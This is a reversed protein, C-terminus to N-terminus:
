LAGVGTDLTLPYRQHPKETGLGTTRRVVEVYYPFFPIASTIVLRIVRGVCSRGVDIPVITDAGPTVHGTIVPYAISDVYAVVSLDAGANVKVRIQRLWVLDRDGVVIPGTDYSRVGLPRRFTVIPAWAYLEIDGDVLLEFDVGTIPAPFTYTVDLPDDLDTTVTLPTQAVGDLIPTLIRSVGQTCLRLQFGSLTKLHPDGRDSPTLTGVFPIPLSTHDIGFSAFRFAAFSGTLRLQVQRFAALGSLPTAVIGLGTQAVAVSTVPTESGEYHVAVAGSVGGTDLQLRLDVADKRNFDQDLADVKTWLTVAINSGNDQTGTDLQWVNGATDGALLTGDPERHLTRFSAPYRHRYWGDARPVHRYVVNTSSSNGGEPTLAVLQGKAIAARFRGSTLNVSEVGHRTLGRYLLSTDGVLSRTGEGTFARWGDNAIFILLNGDQALGDAIPPHDVNMPDKRFNITGDPLEAGDGSLRYIDKSTGIYLGGAGKKVWYPTEEAGAVRIAQGTAFSDPNLRRSPWLMGDSTLAFIRDFYPGAISIIDAPPVGNDAEMTIGVILADQDSLTDTISISAFGSIATQVAVRYFTELQGGRRFLWLENAQTDRSADAPATVSASQSQLTTSASLASPASLGVYTGNNRALVYAWQYPGYLRASEMRINDFALSMISKTTVVLRIATVTNWGKGASAGVRKMQSKRIALRSWGANAVPKDNRIRSVAVGIVPANGRVRAGQAPTLAPTTGSITAGDAALSTDTGVFSGIYYDNEFAHVSGANVDIMVDLSLFNGPEPVYVWLTLLDDDTGVTGADYVTFDAPAAFTRTFATRQTTPLTTVVISGTGSSGDQASGFTAAAGENVVFAPSEASDCTAFTKSDVTAPIVTPLGGTQALGWPRVTTGDYKWKSSGRAFLIQGQHGGFVVDGAGAMGTKIATTIANANAYVTDTAGAMRYRVGNLVETYLSHLDADALTSLLASGQRLAVVGLEDLTLNDMRLLADVPGHSPDADPMWGRAFTHRQLFGM